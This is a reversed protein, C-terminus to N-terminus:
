ADHSRANDDNWGLPQSVLDSARPPPAAFSRGGLAGEQIFYRFWRSTGYRQSAELAPWLYVTVRPRTFAVGEVVLLDIIRPLRNRCPTM